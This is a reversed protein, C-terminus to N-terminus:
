TDILEKVKKTVFISDINNFSKFSDYNIDRNHTM